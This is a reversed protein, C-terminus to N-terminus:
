SLGFEKKADVAVGSHAEMLANKLDDGAVPNKNRFDDIAEGTAVLLQKRQLAKKLAVSALGVLGIGGTSAGVVAAITNSTWQWGTKIGSYVAAQNHTAVVGQAAIGAMYQATSMKLVDELTQAQGQGLIKATGDANQIAQSANAVINTIAEAQEPTVGQRSVAHLGARATVEIRRQKDTQMGAIVPVNQTTITKATELQDKNPRPSDTTFARMLPACGSALLLVGICWCVVTGFALASVKRM